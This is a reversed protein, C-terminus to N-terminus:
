IFIREFLHKGMEANTEEDIFSYLYKSFYARLKLFLIVSHDDKCLRLLQQVLTPLSKVDINQFSDCLKKVVREHEDNTMPIESFMYLISYFKCALSYNSPSCVYRFMTALPIVVASNINATCLTKIVDQKYEKGSM